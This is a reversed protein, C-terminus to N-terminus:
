VIFIAIEDFLDSNMRVTLTEPETRLKMAIAERLSRLSATSEARTFLGVSGVVLQYFIQLWIGQDWYRNVITSPARPPSCRHSYGM